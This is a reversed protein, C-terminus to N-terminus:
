AVSCRRALDHLESGSGDRALLDAVVARAHRHRHVEEAAAHEAEMLSHVAEVDNGKDAHARAVDILYRCGREEFGPPLRLHGNHEVEYLAGTSDGLDIPIAVRHIAVNSPGFVAAGAVDQGLENACARAAELLEKAGLEDGSRACAMAASLYGAGRMTLRNGGHVGARDVSDVAEIAGDCALHHAGERMHVEGRCRLAAAILIPDQAQRATDLARSAASHAEPCNDDKIHLWASVAELQSMLALAPTRDADSGDALIGATRALLDPLTARVASFQSSREFRLLRAVGRRLQDLEGDRFLDAAARPALETVVAALGVGVLGKGFERRNVPDGDYPSERVGSRVFSGLEATPVKLAEAMKRLNAPYPANQGREWRKYSNTPVSLRAAMEEQSLDLKIRLERLRPM